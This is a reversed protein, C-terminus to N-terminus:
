RNQHFQDVQHVRNYNKETIIEFSRVWITLKGIRIGCQSEWLVARKSKEREESALIQEVIAKGGNPFESWLTSETEMSKEDLECHSTWKMVYSIVIRRSIPITNTIMQSINWPLIDKFKTSRSSSTFKKLPNPNSNLYIDRM